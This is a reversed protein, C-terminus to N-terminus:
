AKSADEFIFPEPALMIPKRLGISLLLGVTAGNALLSSGGYSVFPLTLGTVPLLGITMGINVTAQTVMLSVVGVALLRGFPENTAASIHCGALLIVGYCALVVGCGLLGWKHGIVSFIFDNHRDPLFNYRLCDADPNRAGLLGGTALAVKSHDLQYGEGSEWQMVAPAEVRLLKLVGPHELLWQRMHDSQLVAGLVRMRQYDHMTGYMVPAAAVCMLVLSLLHRRRAGAVLLMAFFVPLMLLVTGLDPELLILFMPLLTLGLPWMLGSLTRYNTRFRLYWALAMIYSIKAFESPQVRFPGLEIWRRAGRIEPIISEPFPLWRAAALIALLVLTAGFAPYALPGLRRYDVMSVLVMVALAAIVYTGQHQTFRSSGSGSAEVIYIALLGIGALLVTAATVGVVNLDTGLVGAATERLPAALWGALRATRTRNHTTSAAM